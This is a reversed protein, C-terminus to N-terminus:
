IEECHFFFGVRIEGRLDTFHLLYISVATESTSMFRQLASFIHVANQLLLVVWTFCWGTVWPTRRARHCTIISLPWIYSIRLRRQQINTQLFFLAVIAFVNCPVIFQEIMTHQKSCVLAIAKCMLSSKRQAGGGLSYVGLSFCMLTNAHIYLTYVSIWVNTLIYVSGTQLLGEDTCLIDTVM